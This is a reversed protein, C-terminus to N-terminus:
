FPTSRRELGRWQCGRMTALTLLSVPFVILIRGKSVCTLEMAHFAKLEKTRVVWKKDSPDKVVSRLLELFSDDQLLM